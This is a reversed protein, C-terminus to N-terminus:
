KIRDPQHMSEISGTKNPCATSGLYGAIVIKSPLGSEFDVAAVDKWIVLLENGNPWSFSFNKIETAESQIM